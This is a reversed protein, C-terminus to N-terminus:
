FINIKLCSPTGESIALLQKTSKKIPPLAYKPFNSWSIELGLKENKKLTIGTSLLDITIKKYKDIPGMVRLIGDQFIRESKDTEVVLLKATFHTEVAETKVWLDVSSPGLLTLDDDLPNTYFMLLDTRDSLSRQDRPGPKVPDFSEWVIGGITPVPNNIDIEIELENLEESQKNESLIGEKHLYLQKEESQTPPWSDVEIWKNSRLIFLKILQSANNKERLIFDSLDKIFNSTGDKGFEWDEVGAQSALYGNHSWPGIILDPQIGGRDILDDYTQLTANLLFDYWAGVLCIRATLPKEGKINYKTWLPDDLKTNFLKWIHDPWGLIQVLKEMPNKLSLNYAKPWTENILELSSQFRTSTMISWPLAWHYQLVDGRHISYKLDGLVTPAFITKIDIDEDLVQLAVYGLYSPGFIHLEGNFWEQEKIWNIADVTDEKEDCVRFKGESDYRGRCDQLVIVSNFNTSVLKAVPFTSKANYPTRVLFVPFFDGEIPKVIITSLNIGDRMKVPISFDTVIMTVM